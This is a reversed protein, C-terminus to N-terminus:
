RLVVDVARSGAREPLATRAAVPTRGLMPPLSRVAAALEGLGAGTLAQSGDCLAAEPNPHVDVILGDAGVAIAARSLPVVLDCHGSAHSPDVIVPLHSRQQVVPIASVDLTNRVASEFTRVGRECLVIDLTGACAVHEAALLWEDITASPGRKLLVPKGVAGVVRLLAFNQMNRAGIQLMDAYSAVLDVDATDLVETVVPLGVADRVSALIEL